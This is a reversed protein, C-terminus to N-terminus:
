LHDSIDYGDTRLLDRSNKVSSELKGTNLVYFYILLTEISHLKFKKLNRHLKLFDIAYRFFAFKLKQKTRKLSQFPYETWILDRTNYM